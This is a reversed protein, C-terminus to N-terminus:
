FIDKFGKLPMDRIVITIVTDVISSISQNDFLRTQSGKFEVRAVIRFM